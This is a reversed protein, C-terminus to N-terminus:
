KAGVEPAVFGVFYCRMNIWLRMMACLVACFRVSVQPVKSPGNALTPCRTLESRAQCSSYRSGGADCSESGDAYMRSACALQMVALSRM